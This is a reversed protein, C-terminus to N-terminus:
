EKGKMLGNCLTIRTATNIWLRDRTSALAWSIFSSAPKTAATSEPPFVEGKFISRSVAPTSSITGAFAIISRTAVPKVQTSPGIQTGAPYRINASIVLLLMRLIVGSPLTLMKM